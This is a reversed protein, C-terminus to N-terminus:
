NKSFLKKKIIQILMDLGIYSAFCAGYIVYVAVYLNDVIGVFNDLM